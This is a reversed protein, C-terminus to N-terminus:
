ANPCRGSSSLAHGCIYCRYAHHPRYKPQRAMRRHAALEQDVRSTLDVIADVLPLAVPPTSQKVTSQKVIEDLLSSTPAHVHEVYSVREQQQAQLPM